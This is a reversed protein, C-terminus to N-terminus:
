PASEAFRISALVQELEAIDASTADSTSSAIIVV